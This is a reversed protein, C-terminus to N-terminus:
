VTKISISLVNSLKSAYTFCVIFCPKSSNWKFVYSSQIYSVNWVSFSLSHLCISSPVKCNSSNFFILHFLTNSANSISKSPTLNSVYKLSANYLLAIKSFFAISISSYRFSLYVSQTALLPGYSCCSCRKSIPPM